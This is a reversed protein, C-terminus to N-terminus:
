ERPNNYQIAYFKKSSLLKHSPIYVKAWNRKDSMLVYNRGDEDKLVDGMTRGGHNWLWKKQLETLHVTHRM